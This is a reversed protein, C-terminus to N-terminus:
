LHIEIFVPTEFNKRIRLIVYDGVIPVPLIRLLYADGLHTLRSSESKSEIIVFENQNPAVRRVM